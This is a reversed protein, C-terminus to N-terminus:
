QKVETTFEVDGAEDGHVAKLHRRVATDVDDNPSVEVIGKCSRCRMLMIDWIWTRKHQTSM